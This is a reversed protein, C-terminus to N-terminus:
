SSEEQEDLHRELADLRKTWLQRYPELWEDLNRFPASDIRYVRRQADTRCAVFGADRLVKLHKSIAPQSLELAGVLDGVNRESITLENLIRLRTSQALVNFSNAHM